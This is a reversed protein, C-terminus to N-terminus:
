DFGIEIFKLMLHKSIRCADMWWFGCKSLSWCLINQFALPSYVKDAIVHIFKLMLHKSIPSSKGVATSTSKSLSWCLINQFSSIYVSVHSDLPIFKLMLHKSILIHLLPHRYSRSLSWCLINQFSLFFPILMLGIRSLSWCLINQFKREEGTRKGSKGIFKLMLHKSITSVPILFFTHYPIFKLMLHKSIQFGALM